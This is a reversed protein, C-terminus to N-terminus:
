CTARGPRDEESGGEGETRWDRLNDVVRYLM